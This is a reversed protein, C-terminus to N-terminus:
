KGDGETGEVAEATATGAAATVPQSDLVIRSDRRNGSGNLAGGQRAASVGCPPLFAMPGVAESEPVGKTVTYNSVTFVIFVSPPVFPPHGASGFATRPALTISATQGPTLSMLAADLGPVVQGRGATFSLTGRGFERIDSSSGDWIQGTLQVEIRDGVVAKAGRATGGTVEVAYGQESLDDFATLSRLSYASRRQSVVRSITPAAAAPSTATESVTASKAFSDELSVFEDASQIEVKKLDQPRPPPAPAPNARPKEKVYNKPFYGRFVNGHRQVIGLWWGHDNREVIEIIEGAFLTLDQESEASWDFLVECQDLPIGKISM